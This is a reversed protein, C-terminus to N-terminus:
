NELNELRRVGVIGTHGYVTIVVGVEATHEESNFSSAQVAAHTFIKLGIM